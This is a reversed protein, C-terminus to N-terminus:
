AYWSCAMPRGDWKAGCGHDFRIFVPESFFGRSVRKIMKEDNGFEGLVPVTNGSMFCNEVTKQKLQRLTVSKDTRRVVQYFDVNTQEYGWSNYIVDGVQLPNIFNQNQKKM